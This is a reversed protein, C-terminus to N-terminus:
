KGATRIKRAFYCIICSLSGQIHGLESSMDTPYVPTYRATDGVSAGFSVATVHELVLPIGAPFFVPFLLIELFGPFGYM